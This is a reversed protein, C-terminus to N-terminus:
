ELIMKKSVTRGREDTLQVYYMGRALQGSQFIWRHGQRTFPAFVEQGFQNFLRINGKGGENMEITFQSRAPNPYVQLTIPEYIEEYSLPYDVTFNYVISKGFDPEFIKLASGDGKRFRVYGIGDNNAWFDIGDEDTDEVIFSYCGGGLNFTDRYLLNNAMNNRQFVLNGDQDVIKYSSEAGVLNTKFQVIFNSPVVETINFVSQFTNNLTYADSGGNPNRLNVHFVNGSPATIASWLNASAPLSVEATEMFALNGTWQYTDKVTNNNV